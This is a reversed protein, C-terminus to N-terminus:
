LTNAVNLLAAMSRKVFQLVQRIMEVPEVIGAAQLNGVTGKEVDLGIRIYDTHTADVCISREIGVQHLSFFQNPALAKVREFVEYGDFGAAEALKLLPQELAYILASAAQECGQDRGYKRMPRCLTLFTLGGGPVQNGNEAGVREAFSVSADLMAFIQQWDDETCGAQVGRELLADMVILATKVGQEPVDAQRLVSAARAMDASDPLAEKLIEAFSSTAVYEGTKSRYQITKGTGYTSAAASTLGAVGNRLSECFVVPKRMKHQMRDNHPRNIHM